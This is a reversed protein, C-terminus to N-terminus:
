AHLEQSPCVHEQGLVPSLPRALEVYAGERYLRVLVAQGCQRCRGGTPQPPVYPYEDHSFVPKAMPSGEMSSTFDDATGRIQKAMLAQYREPNVQAAYCMADCHKGHSCAIAFAALRRRYEAIASVPDDAEILVCDAQVWYRGTPRPGDLGESRQLM